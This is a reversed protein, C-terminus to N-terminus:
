SVRLRKRDRFASWEGTASQKYVEERWKGWIYGPTFVLEKTKELNTDICVIRFM